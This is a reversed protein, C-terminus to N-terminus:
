RFNALRTDLENCLKICGMEALQTRTLWTNYKPTCGVWQVEYEYEKRAQRSPPHTTRPPSPAPPLRAWPQGGGGVCLVWEGRARERGAGGGGGGVCVCM